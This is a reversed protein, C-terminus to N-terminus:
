SLTWGSWAALLFCAGCFLQGPLYLIRPYFADVFVAFIVPGFLNGVANCTYLLNFAQFLDDSDIYEAVVVPHLGTCGGALLGYLSAFVVLVSFSWSLPWLVACLLGAVGCGVTLTHTRNYRDAMWGLLIRGLANSASMVAALVAAKSSSVGMHVAYAPLFFYPLNYAFMILANQVFLRVFNPQKFLHFKYVFGVYKTTPTDHILCAALTLVVVFLAAQLLLSVRFGYNDMLWRVLPSLVLGGVGTGAAAIGNALGRHEVFYLNPLVVSAYFVLSGGIGWLLGQTLHLHWMQTAMSALLFGISMFAAGLVISTRKGIRHIIPGVCLGLAFLTTVGISGISAIVVALNTMRNYQLDRQAQQMYEQQYIGFTNIVGFLCMNCLFVALIIM